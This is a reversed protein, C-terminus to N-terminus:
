SEETILLDSLKNLLNYKNIGGLKAQVWESQILVCFVLLILFPTGPSLKGLSTIIRHNAIFIDNKDTKIETENSFM